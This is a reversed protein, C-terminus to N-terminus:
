LSKGKMNIANESLAAQADTYTHIADNVNLMKFRIFGLILEVMAYPIHM